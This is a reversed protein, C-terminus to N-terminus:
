HYSFLTPTDKSAVLLILVIKASVHPLVSQVQLKFLRRRQLFLLVIHFRAYAILPRNLGNHEMRTRVVQLSMHFSFVRPQM